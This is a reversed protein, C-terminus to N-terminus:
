MGRRPFRRVSYVPRDSNRSDAMPTPSIIEESATVMCCPSSPAKRNRTGDIIKDPKQELNQIILEKLIVALGVNEAGETLNIECHGNM